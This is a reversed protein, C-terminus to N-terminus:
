IIKALKCLRLLKDPDVIIDARNRTVFSLENPEEPLPEGILYYYDCGSHNAIVYNSSEFYTYPFLEIVKTGPRAFLLNHLAAGHVAIIVDATGFLDAEQQMTLGDTTLFRFGLPELAARIEPLNRERRAGVNGRMVFLKKDCSVGPAPPRAEFLNEKLFRYTYRNMEFGSQLAQPDYNIYMMSILARDARCPFGIIQEERIGLHLLCEKAFEKIQGDGIYYYDINEKGFTEWYSPLMPLQLEIWHGYQCFLTNSLYAVTGKLKKCRVLKQPWFPLEKFQVRSYYVARNRHDLLQNHQFTFNPNRVDLLVANYEVPETPFFFEPCSFSADEPLHKPPLLSYDGKRIFSHIKVDRRWGYFRKANELTLPVIDRMFVGREIWYRRIAKKRLNWLYKKVDKITKM